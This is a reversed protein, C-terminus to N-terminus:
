QAGGATRHHPRRGWAGVKPRVGFQSAGPPTRKHSAPKGGGNGRRKPSRGSHRESALTHVHSAPKGGGRAGGAPLPKAAGALGGGCPIGGRETRGNYRSPDRATESGGCRLRDRGFGTARLRNGLRSTAGHADVFGTVHRRSSPRSAPGHADLLRRIHRRLASRIAPRMVVPAAQHVRGMAPPVPPAALGWGAPSRSPAPAWRALSAPHPRCPTVSRAPRALASSDPRPLALLSRSPAPAWRALSAPHPRCPLAPSALGPRCPLAALAPRALACRVRAHRGCRLPARPAARSIARLARM